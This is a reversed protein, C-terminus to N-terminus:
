SMYPFPRNPTLAAFGGCDIPSLRRAVPRSGQSRLSGKSIRRPPKGHARRDLGRTTGSSGIRASSDVPALTGIPRAPLKARLDLSGGLRVRISCLARSLGSIADLREGGIQLRALDVRFRRDL